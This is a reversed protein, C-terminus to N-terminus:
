KAKEQDYLKSWKNYDMGLIEIYYYLLYASDKKGAEFDVISSFALECNYEIDAISMGNSVRFLRCIGGIREIVQRRRKTWRKNM